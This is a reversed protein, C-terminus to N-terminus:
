RPLELVGDIRRPIRWLDDQLEEPLVEQPVGQWTV